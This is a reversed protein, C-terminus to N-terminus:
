AMTVTLNWRVIASGIHIPEAAKVTCLAGNTLFDDNAKPTYAGLSTPSVVVSRDAQTLMGVLQEPKLGRVFGTAAQITAGRRFSVVQGHAAIQRDLAAIAAAPTM